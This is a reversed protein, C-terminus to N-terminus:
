SARHQEDGSSAVEWGPGALEKARYMAADADRFLASPDTARSHTLAIGLSVTVSFTHGDVFWTEKTAGIMRAASLGAGGPNTVDECVAVFEDGGFRALTDTPRMVSTLRRALEVLVGDGVDHGFTDNIGKFGDVDLYRVSVRGGRRDLRSLSRDIRDLYLERTPFDPM